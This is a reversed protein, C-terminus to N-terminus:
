RGSLCRSKSFPDATIKPMTWSKSRAIEGEERERNRLIASRARDEQPQTILDWRGRKVIALFVRVPCRAKVTQARVAASVWNLFSAESNQVWKRAVAEEFLTRLRSYRKLDELSVNRLTPRGANAKCVGPLKLARSQTKQNKFEYSTKRDKYPPAFVPRTEIRLPSIRPSADGNRALRPETWSLDIRFYAGDRNLKRQFSGTDKSIFKMRILESRAAKVGRLSLEFTKSIWSAKVTGASSIQGTRSDLSLGRVIYGLLTKSVSGRQSAALFRLVARPVPIPRKPSRKGSIEQCLAAAGAVLERNPEIVSEGFVVVSSLRLRKLEMKVASKRLGTLASLESVLYRSTSAPKRGKKTASRM